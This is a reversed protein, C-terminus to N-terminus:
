VCMCYIHIYIHLVFFLHLKKGLQFNVMQECYFQKQQISANTWICQFFITLFLILFLDSDWKQPVMLVSVTSTFLNITGASNCPTSRQPCISPLPHKSIRMFHRFARWINLFTRPESTRKSDARWDQPTNKSQLKLKM